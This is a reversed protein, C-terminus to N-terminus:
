RARMCPCCFVRVDKGDIRLALSGSKTNTFVMEFGKHFHAGRFLGEFEDLAAAGDVTQAVACCSAVDPPDQGTGELM